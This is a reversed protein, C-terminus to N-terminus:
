DNNKDERLIVGIQKLEKDTFSTKVGSDILDQLSERLANTTEKEVKFAKKFRPNNKRIILHDRLIRM